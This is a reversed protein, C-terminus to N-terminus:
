NGIQRRFDPIGEVDVADPALGQDLRNRFLEYAIVDVAAGSGSGSRAKARAENSMAHIDADVQDKPMGKYRDWLQNVRQKIQPDGMYMTAKEATFKPPLVPSAQYIRDELNPNALLDDVFKPGYAEPIGNVRAAVQKIEGALKRVFPMDTALNRRAAADAEQFRFLNQYAARNSKIEEPSQGQVLLGTYLAAGDSLGEITGAPIANRLQQKQSEVSAAGKPESVGAQEEGKREANPNADKNYRWNQYQTRDGARKTGGEGPGDIRAGFYGHQEREPHLFRPKVYGADTTEMGLQAFEDDDNKILEQVQIFYPFEDQLTELADQYGQGNLQYVREGKEKVFRNYVARKATRLQRQGQETQLEREGFGQSAIRDIEDMEQKSMRPRKKAKDTIAKLNQEFLKDQDEDSYSFPSEQIQKLTKEEAETELEAREWPSFPKKEIQKSQVADLIKEYRDVMEKARGTGRARGDFDDDFDVQFIGSSSIVIMTKLGTQLGTRLDESTPGGMTRTRVYTGAKLDKLNGHSFPLYHDEAVGVSQHLLEGDPAIIIGESPAVKGSGLRLNNRSAKPIRDRLYDVAGQIAAMERSDSNLYKAADARGNSINALVKSQENQPRGHLRSALVRKQREAVKKMLDKDLKREVGQYRYKARRIAPGVLREGHPAIQGALNAGAGAYMVTSAGPVGAVTGAAGLGQALEGAESMTNWTRDMNSTEPREYKRNANQNLTFMSDNAANGFRQMGEQGGAMFNYGRAETEGLHRAGRVAQNVLKVPQVREVKGTGRSWESRGRSGLTDRAAFQGLPNRKYPDNSSAKSIPYLKGESKSIGSRAGVAVAIAEADHGEAILSKCVTEAAQLAELEIRRNTKEILRQNGSVLEEYVEDAFVRTFMEAEDDDMKSILSYVNGALIEDFDEM